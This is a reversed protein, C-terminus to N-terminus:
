EVDSRAAPDKGRCRACTMFVGFSILWITEPYAALREMGGQGLGLDRHGAFCLLALLSLPGWTLSYRRLSPPLPLVIGLVIIGVNAVGIALAAGVLHVAHVTNEPFLGVVATGAGAVAVCGFGLVTAWRETARLPSFEHYILLSGVIMVAGLLVLAANMLDHRPSCVFAGRYTGCATNGLDSISNSVVSYPPRWVWAVALPSRLLLRQPDVGDPRGLPLPRRVRCRWRPLLRDGFRDRGSADDLHAM